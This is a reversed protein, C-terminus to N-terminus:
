MVDIPEDHFTAQCAFNVFTTTLSCVLAPWFHFYELTFNLVSAIIIFLFQDAPSRDVPLNSDLLLGVAQLYFMYKLISFNWRTAILLIIRLAEITLVGMKIYPFISKALEINQPGGEEIYAESANVQLRGLPFLLVFNLIRLCTAAFTRYSLIQEFDKFKEKHIKSPFRRLILDRLTRLRKATICKCM